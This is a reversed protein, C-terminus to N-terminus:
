LIEIEINTYKKLKKFDSDFTVLKDAYRYALETHLVDNINKCSSNEVCQQMASILMQADYNACLYEVYFSVDHKIIDGNVGLRSLTYIYEQLVLPSLILKNTDVLSQILAISINKKEKDQEIAAYILVNTDLYVMM